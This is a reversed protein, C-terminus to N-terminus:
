ENEDYHDKLLNISKDKDESMISSFLKIKNTM